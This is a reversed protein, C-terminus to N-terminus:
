VATTQSSIAPTQQNTLRFYRGGKGTDDVVRPRLALVQTSLSRWRADVPDQPKPKKAETEGGEGKKEKLKVVKFLLGAAEDEKNYIERVSLAKTKWQDKTLANASDRSLLRV